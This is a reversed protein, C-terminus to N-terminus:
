LNRYWIPSIPDLLPLPGSSGTSSLEGPTGTTPGTTTGTTPGITSQTTPQTTTPQTTGRKRRKPPM